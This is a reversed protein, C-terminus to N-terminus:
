LVIASFLVLLEDFCLLDSSLGGELDDIMQRHDTNMLSVGRNIFKDIAATKDIGFIQVGWYTQAQACAHTKLSRHRSYATFKAYFSTM